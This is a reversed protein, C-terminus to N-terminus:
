AAPPLLQQARRLVQVDIICYTAEHYHQQAGTCALFLLLMAVRPVRFPTSLRGASSSPVSDAGFLQVITALLRSVAAVQDGQSSFPLLQAAVPPLVCQAV